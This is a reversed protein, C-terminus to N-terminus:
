SQLLGNFLKGFHNKVKQDEWWGQQLTRTAGHERWWKINVKEAMRPLIDHSAIIKIYM